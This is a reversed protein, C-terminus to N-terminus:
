CFDKPDDKTGGKWKYSLLKAFLGEKTNRPLDQIERESKTELSTRRHLGSQQSELVEASPSKPADVSRGTEFKVVNNRELTVTPSMTYTNYGGSSQPAKEAGRAAM